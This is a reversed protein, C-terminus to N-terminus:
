RVKEHRTIVLYSRTMIIVQSEWSLHTGASTRDQWISRQFSSSFGEVKRQLSRGHANSTRRISELGTPVRSSARSPIRREVARESQVFLVSWRTLGAGPICLVRGAISAVHCPGWRPDLNGYPGRTSGVHTGNFYQCPGISADLAFSYDCSTYQSYDLPRM